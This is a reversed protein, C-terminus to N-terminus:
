RRRRNYEMTRYDDSSYVLPGFTSPGTNQISMPVSSFQKADLSNKSRGPRQMGPVPTMASNITTLQDNPQRRKGGGRRKAM